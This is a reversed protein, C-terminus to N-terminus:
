MGFVSLRGFARRFRFAFLAARNVISVLGVSGILWPDSVEVEVRM